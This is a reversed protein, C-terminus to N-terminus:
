GSGAPTFAAAAATAPTAVAAASTASSAAAAAAHSASSPNTTGTPRTFAHRAATIGSAIGYSPRLWDDPTRCIAGKAGVCAKGSCAGAGIRRESTHEYTPKSTLKRPKGGVRSSCLGTLKDAYEIAHQRRSRHVHEHHHQRPQPVM